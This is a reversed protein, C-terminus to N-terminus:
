AATGVRRGRAPDLVRDAPGSHVQPLWALSSRLTFLFAEIRSRLGEAAAM